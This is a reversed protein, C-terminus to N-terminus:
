AARGALLALAADAAAQGTLHAGHATSYAHASVAEGAFFVREGLPQVLTQSLRARRHALGPLACSYAGGIFPDAVWSTTAVGTVHRAIDAGFADKLAALGFDEMAKPGARVLGAANDGGLQGIAMHAGFPNLTFNIPRRDPDRLDITDVYTTAPVGFVDRDFQFAVKEAAGLPLAEFAEALEVPLLPAFTLAGRAIVTTPVAVIVARATLRGRPTELAVDAGSWDIRTVPCGTVVALNPAAKNAVAQVLAGYGKEVPYNEATDSYAAYDLTSVKEIEAATMLTAWHRILRIWPSSADIAESAAIDRGEDGARHIAAFGGDIARWVEEREAENAWREGLHTARAQRSGRALYTLGLEDAAARLPNVSASHLWHCGRDWAVGFTATDTFARGGTREAAEIVLVDIGANHLRVGAALGAAGAGVVIVEHHSNM